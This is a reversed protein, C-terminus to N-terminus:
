KKKEHNKYFRMILFPVSWLLSNAIFLGWHFGTHFKQADAFYGIPSGRVIGAIDWSPCGLWGCDAMSVIQITLISIVTGILISIMIGRLINKEKRNLPKHM